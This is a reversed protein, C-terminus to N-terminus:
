PNEHSTSQQITFSHETNPPYNTQVLFQSGSAQNQAPHFESKITHLEYFENLAFPTSQKPKIIFIHLYYTLIPLFFVYDNKLVTIYTVPLLSLFKVAQHAFNLYSCLGRYKCKHLLGVFACQYFIYKILTYKCQTHLIHYKITTFNHNTVHTCINKLACILFMYIEYTSINLFLNSVLRQVFSRSPSSRPEYQDGSTALLIFSLVILHTSMHCTHRALSTYLPNQRNCRLSLIM